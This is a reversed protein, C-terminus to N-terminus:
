ITLSSKFRQRPTGHFGSEDRNSLIRYKSGNNEITFMFDQDLRDAEEKNSARITKKVDVVIRDSDAPRVDVNGFYNVIEIESGPTVNQQERHQDYTYNNGT